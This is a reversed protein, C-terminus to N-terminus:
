LARNNQAACPLGDFIPWTIPQGKKKYRKREPLCLFLLYIFNIVSYLASGTCPIQSDLYFRQVLEVFCVAM